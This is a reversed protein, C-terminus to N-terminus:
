FSCNFIFYQIQATNNNLMCLLISVESVTKTYYLKSINGNYIDFEADLLRNDNMNLQYCNGNWYNPKIIVLYVPQFMYSCLLDYCDDYTTCNANIIRDHLITHAFTQLGDGAFLNTTYIPNILCLVILFLM